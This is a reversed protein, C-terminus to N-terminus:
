RSLRKYKAIAKNYDALAKTVEPGAIGGEKALAVKLAHATRLCAAAADWRVNDYRENASVM